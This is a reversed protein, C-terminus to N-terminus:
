CSVEYVQKLLAQFAPIDDGLLVAAAEGDASIEAMLAAEARLAEQFAKPDM